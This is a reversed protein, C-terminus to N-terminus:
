TDGLAAISALIAERQSLNKAPFKFGNITNEHKICHKTDVGIISNLQQIRGIILQINRDAMMGILVGEVRARKVSDNNCRANSESIRLFGHTPGHKELLDLGWERYWSFIDSLDIYSKPPSMKGYDLPCPDTRTGEMVAWQIVGNSEVRLGISKNSISNMDNCQSQPNDLEPILLDINNNM